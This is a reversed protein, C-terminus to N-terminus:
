KRAKILKYSPDYKALYGELADYHAQIDKADSLSTDIGKVCEIPHQQFPDSELNYYILTKLRGERTSEATLLGKNSRVARWDRVTHYSYEEIEGGKNLVVKSLDKGDVKNDFKLGMLGLITPAIHVSNMVMEEERAVIHGNWCFILPVSISEEYSVGKTMRGQSGMMEGHDATIVIITTEKLSKGKYRPDPTKELYDNLEGICEDISTIAGFYGRYAIRQSYHNFDQVNPRLPSKLKDSYIAEYSLPARYELYKEGKELGSDPTYDGYMGSKGDVNYSLTKGGEVPKPGHITHPPSYSVYLAFPNSKDRVDFTNEMYDIAKRTLHDCEWSEQIRLKEDEYMRSPSFPMPTKKGDKTYEGLGDVENENFFFYSIDFHTHGGSTYWYQFGRRQRDDKMADTYNTTAMHWKGVHATNYGADNLVHAITTEDLSFQRTLSNDTLKHTQAYCGTALTARNPCSMPSSAVGNNFLLGESILKDVCPTKVPDGQNYSGDYKADGYHSIAMRRWQDAYIFLLNPKIQESKACAIQSLSTLLILSAASKNNILNM